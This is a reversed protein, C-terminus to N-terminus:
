PAETNPRMAGMIEDLVRRRFAIPLEVFRAPDLPFMTGDDNLLDWSKIVSALATNWDQYAQTVNEIGNAGTANAYDVAFLGPFSKENIRGPYFVVTVSEGQYTFTVSAENSAMNSVTIPM